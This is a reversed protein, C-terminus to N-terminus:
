PTFSSVTDDMDSLMRGPEIESPHLLANVLIVLIKQTVLTTLTELYLSHTEKSDIREYVMQYIDTYCDDIDDLTMFVFKENSIVDLCLSTCHVALPSFKM